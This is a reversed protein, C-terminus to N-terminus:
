AVHLNPSSSLSVKDSGLPVASMHSLMYPTLYLHRGTCMLACIKHSRGLGIRQGKSYWGGVEVSSRVLRLLKMWRERRASMVGGELWRGEEDGYGWPAM